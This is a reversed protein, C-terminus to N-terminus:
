LEPISDVGAERRRDGAEKTDLLFAAAVLVLLVVNRLLTAELGGGFGFAGFCGCSAVSQGQIYFYLLVSSFSLLLLASALLTLNLKKGWFLFGALTLEIISTTMVIPTGYEILWYYETALLEVLYLADSGDMLKGIGSLLFIGGLLFRIGTTIYNRVKPTMM